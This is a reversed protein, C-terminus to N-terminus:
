PTIEYVVGSDYVGGFITTGYLNGGDDMALDSAPYNGDDGGAFSHLLTHIWKNKPGPTLKFVTGGLSPDAGGFSTTGYMNGVKDFIVGASPDEGDPGSFSHVVKANWVDYKCCNPVLAFVAGRGYLSGDYTTGYLNSANKTLGAIPHKGAKSTDSFTHIVHIIEGGRLEFVNGERFGGGAYTTGYSGASMAAWPERGNYGTFDWQKSKTWGNGSNTLLFVTGYNDKGGQVTTGILSGDFVLSAGPFAGDSGAGTFSHLINFTWGNQSPSLEFVTGCQCVPDGGSSVTGYLNGADDLVLGGIPTYGDAGGTFTYILHFTWRGSLSPSLQFVTGGGFAGGFQATGYLNGAKDFVVGAYPQSGDAGGTFAYLVKETPQARLVLPSFLLVLLVLVPTALRLVLACVARPATPM